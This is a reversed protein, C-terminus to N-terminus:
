IDISTKVAIGVRRPYGQKEDGSDEARVAEMDPVPLSIEPVSESLAYNFSGPTGSQSVQSILPLPSFSLLLFPSLSVLLFNRLPILMQLIYKRNFGKRELHNFFFM